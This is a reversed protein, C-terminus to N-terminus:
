FTYRLKPTLMFGARLYRVGFVLDVEVGVSFHRLHTFIEYGAGALLLVDPGAYMGKPSILAVGGGGRAYAFQRPIGDGGQRAYFAFTGTAGVTLSSFDGRLTEPGLFSSPTDTHTGLVMLAVQAKEGLDRGLSLGVTRGPSFASGESAKPGFLFLGGAEVGVFFGREVEKLKSAPRDDTPAAAEAEAQGLALRPFSLVLFLVLAHSIRFIM